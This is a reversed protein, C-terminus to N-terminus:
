EKIGSMVIGQTFYKQFFSYLVMIPVMAVVMSAAIQNWYKQYKSGTLNTLALQLTRVKPESAVILPWYLDNWRGMFELVLNTGIVATSLPLFIRLYMQFEGAGDIRAADFLSDPIGLSFQRILFIGFVNGLTPIILGYFTNVWKLQRLLLFSPILTVQLPIMMTMLVIMFLINRGKFRFKGFAYGSMSAFFVSVVTGICAYIM